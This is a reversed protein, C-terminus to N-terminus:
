KKQSVVEAPVVKEPVAEPLLRPFRIRLPEWKPWQFEPTLAERTKSFAAATEQGIRSFSKRIEVATLPRALADAEDEAPEQQKKVRTQPKDQNSVNQKKPRTGFPNIKRISWDDANLPSQLGLFLLLSLTTVTSLARFTVTSNEPLLAIHKTGDQRHISRPM